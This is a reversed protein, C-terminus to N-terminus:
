RPGQRDPFSGNRGRGCVLGGLDVRHFADGEDDVGDGAVTMAHAGLHEGLAHAEVRPPERDDGGALDRGVEEFVGLPRDCTTRAEGEGEHLPAVSCGGLM